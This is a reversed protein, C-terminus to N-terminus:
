RTKYYVRGDIRLDIYELSSWNEKIEKELVLELTKLQSDISYAPNFYIQCGGSVNVRIEEGSIIRFDNIQLSPGAATKIKPLGNNVTLIFDITEPSVVETRLDVSEKHSFINLVVSGSILPSERYIIGERDIHFCKKIKPEAMDLTQGQSQPEAIEDPTTTALDPRSQIKEIQCWIGISERKEIIVELETGAIDSLSALARFHPLKKNVVVGKIEPFGELIDEKIKEVPALIISKQPVIQWLKEELNRQVILSLGKSVLVTDLPSDKFEIKKVWLIPSWILFYVLGALLCFFLGGFIKIKLSSTKKKQFRNKIM